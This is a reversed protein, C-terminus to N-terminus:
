PFKLDRFKQFLWIRCDVIPRNPSNFVTGPRISTNGNFARLGHWPTSILRGAVRRSPPHDEPWDRWGGVNPQIDGFNRTLFSDV